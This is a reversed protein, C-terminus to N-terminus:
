LGWILLTYVIKQPSFFNFFLEHFFKTSFDTYVISFQFPFFFTAFLWACLFFNEVLICSVQLYLSFHLFQSFNLFFKWFFNKKVFDYVCVSHSEFGYKVLKMNQESRIGKIWVWIMKICSIICPFNDSLKVLNRYFTLYLIRIILVHPQTANNCLMFIGYM